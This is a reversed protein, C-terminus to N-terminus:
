ANTYYVELADVFDITMQKAYTSPFCETRKDHIETTDEIIARIRRVGGPRLKDGKRLVVVEILGRSPSRIETQWSALVSMKARDDQITASSVLPGRTTKVLTHSHPFFEGDLNQVKSQMRLVLDSTVSASIEVSEITMDIVGDHLSVVRRVKYGDDDITSTVSELAGPCVSSSTVVADGASGGWVELFPQVVLPQNSNDVCLRRPIKTDQMAQRRHDFGLGYLKSYAWRCTRCEPSTRTFAFRAEFQELAAEDDRWAHYSEWLTRNESVERVYKAYTDWSNFSSALIASHPPLIDQLNRAGLVAPVAGSLLSEWVIPTTYDKEGAAEFALHIRNKKSIALRGELTQTSEGAQLDTNHDCRGYSRVPFQAAM